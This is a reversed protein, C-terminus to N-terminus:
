RGRRRCRRSRGRAPARPPRPRTVSAARAPLAPAHRLFAVVHLVDLLIRGLAELVPGVVLALVLREAAALAVVGVVLAGLALKARGADLMVGVARHRDVALGDVVGRLELAVRDRAARGVGLRAPGVGPARAM